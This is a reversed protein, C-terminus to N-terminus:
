PIVSRYEIVTNEERALALRRAQGEGPRGAPWDYPICEFVVSTGLRNYIQGGKCYAGIRWLKTRVTVGQGKLSSFTDFLESSLKLGNPLCSGCAEVDAQLKLYSTVALGIVLAIIAGITAAWRLPKMETKSSPQTM